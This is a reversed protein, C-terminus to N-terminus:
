RGISKYVFGENDMAEPDFINRGDIIIPQNMSNRVKKLNLKKFEDWETVILLADSGKIAEYATKCFTIGPLLPKATGMAKPDYARIKAGEKQLGKIIDIAPANRMDDTNPKFALGLVAVEKDGLVWLTEEVKKLFLAKQNENVKEVAKLLEFNYGLAESIRIFASVDKPFCSGGYGVGPNLFERGIRKDLGMGKVVEEIHAGSLECINALSNVFSIKMALFSNSAHKIIEASKINTIITPAHIGAYLEKMLKAARRSTVGIVVRDANFFDDIASGERLFEPNSVVDFDLHKKNYRKITEAVKEGTRVPVTSKDVIVKYTSMTSAIDRAASEVYRLDAEGNPKPPTNVCIFIVDSAKVMRPTEQAFRIRKERINKKLLKDLGPEYIPVTGRRLKDIKAKNCDVCYVNHGLEALCVGTVLGVYGVGIIGVEM